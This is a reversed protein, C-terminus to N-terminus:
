CIVISTLTEQHETITLSSTQNHPRHKSPKKYYPGQTLSLYAEYIAFRKNNPLTSSGSHSSLFPSSGFKTTSLFLAILRSM